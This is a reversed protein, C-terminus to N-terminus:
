WQCPPLISPSGRSQEKVAPVGGGQLELGRARSRTGQTGEGGARQPTPATEVFWVPRCM